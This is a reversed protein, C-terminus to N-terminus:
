PAPPSNRDVFADVLTAADLYDQVGVQGRFEAQGEEFVTRYRPYGLCPNAIRPAAPAACLNALNQSYTRQLKGAYKLEWVPYRCWCVKGVYDPDYGCKVAVSGTPCQRTMPVVLDRDPDAPALTLTVNANAWEAAYGSVARLRGAYNRLDTRFSYRDWALPDLSAEVEIVTSYASVAQILGLGTYMPTHWGKTADPGDQYLIDGTLFSALDNAYPIVDARTVPDQYQRIFQLDNQLNTLESLRNWVLTKVNETAYGTVAVDLDAVQTQLGAVGRQITTLQNSLDALKEDLTPGTDFIGLFSLISRATDYADRGASIAARACTLGNPDAVCAAPLLDSYGLEARSSAPDISAGPDMGCGPVAVAVVLAAALMSTLRSNTDTPM